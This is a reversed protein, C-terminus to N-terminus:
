IGTPAYPQGTRLRLCSPKRTAAANPATTSASATATPDRADEIATGLIEDTLGTWPLTPVFTVILPEFKFPAVSTLNLRVFAVKVTTEAEFIVAVTGLPAVLPLILTFVGFPVAVLGFTNATTPAGNIEDNAGVLPGTPVDTVIEPVWKVPAVVTLNLPALALKWTAEAVEIVAVTGLPAVVPFTARVVGPPVAVLLV